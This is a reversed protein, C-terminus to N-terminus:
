QWPWPTGKFPGRLGREALVERFLPRLEPNLLGGPGALQYTLHVPSANAENVVFGRHSVGIDTGLSRQRPFQRHVEVATAIAEQFDPVQKGALPEGTVPAHHVPEGYEKAMDHGRVINGTKMDVFIRVCGPKADDDSMAGPSPLRLVAYVPHVDGSIWLSYVRLVPLTPGSIPRLGDSARLLEQFMYGKGYAAILEAALKAAEVLRGDGLLLRGDETAAEIVVVGRCLGGFIPKGFCPTSGPRLLYRTMEEVSNLAEAKGWRISGPYIAHVDAVKVGAAALRAATELKDNLAESENESPPGNLLRNFRATAAQGLYARVEDWTLEPRYLGM